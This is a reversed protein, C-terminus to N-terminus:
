VCALVSHIRFRRLLLHPERFLLSPLACSLYIGEKIPTCDGGLMLKAAANYFDPVGDIPLYEKNIKGAEQQAFLEQEAAKVTPLVWPKGNEDRYAGVGLNLKNEATCKQFALSVGLIADVPAQEVAAFTSM